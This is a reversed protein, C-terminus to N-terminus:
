AAQLIRELRRRERRGVVPPALLAAIDGAARRGRERAEEPEEWVRRMIRAADDLDPEAWTGGAPYLGADSGVRGLSHAVLYSNSETMFETNGSYGTAIVPKGLAMAEALPLGFGESRHLSAYCDCRAMLEAQEGPDLLRDFLEIDPRGGIAELLDDRAEPRREANLSKLVLHPGEGPDFARSFAEVLGIPNKRKLTSFFDFAFLFKFGDPLALREGAAPAAAPELPLPMTVVPVAVAPDLIEAVYRSYVWIESLLGANETLQEPVPDSEWAWVGVAPRRSFYEPGRLSAFAGLELGNICVLNVDPDRAPARDPPAPGLLAPLEAGPVLEGIQVTTTGVDAGAARLGETYLRAAEGQGVCSDFYGEVNVSIPPGSGPM